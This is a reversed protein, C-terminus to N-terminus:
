NTLFHILNDLTKKKDKKTVKIYQLEPERLMYERAKRATVKVKTQPSRLHSRDICLESNIWAKLTIM